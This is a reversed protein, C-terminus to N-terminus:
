LSGRMSLCCHKFKKHSGCPCPDNRGVKTVNVLQRGPRNQVRDYNRLRQMAAGHILAADLGKADSPGGTSM